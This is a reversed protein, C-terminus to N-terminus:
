LATLFDKETYDALVTKEKEQLRKREVWGLWLQTTKQAKEPHDRQIKKHWMLTKRLVGEEPIRASLLGQSLAKGVRSFGVNNKAHHVFLKGDFAFETWDEHVAQCEKPNSRMLSWFLDEAWLDPTVLLWDLWVVPPVGDRAAALIPSSPPISVLLPKAWELEEPLVEGEVCKTLSWGWHGSPTWGDEKARLCIKRYFDWTSKLPSNKPRKLTRKAETASAHNLVSLAEELGFGDTKEVLHQDVTSWVELIKWAKAHWILGLWPSADGLFERGAPTNAWRGWALANDHRIWHAIKQRDMSQM